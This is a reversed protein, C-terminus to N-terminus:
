WAAEAVGPLHPPFSAANEQVWRSWAPHLPKKVEPAVLGRESLLSILRLRTESARQRREDLDREILAADLPERAKLRTIRAEFEQVEADWARLSDVLDDLAPRSGLRLWAAGFDIWKDDWPVAGLAAVARDDPMRSLQEVVVLRWASLAATREDIEDLEILIRKKNEVYHEGELRARLSKERKALRLAEPSSSRLADVLADLTAPGNQPRGLLRTAATRVVLSADDLAAALRQVVRESPANTHAQTLEAVADLAACRESEDGTELKRGQEALVAAEEAAHAACLQAGRGAVTCASCVDLALTLFLAIM